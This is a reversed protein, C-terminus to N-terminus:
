EIEKAYFRILNDTTSSVYEDITTANIHEAFNKLALNEHPLMEGRVSSYDDEDDVICDSFYLRNGHSPTDIHYLISNWLTDYLEAWSGNGIVGEESERTDSAEEFLDDWIGFDSLVIASCLGPMGVLTYVFTKGEYEFQLVKNWGM